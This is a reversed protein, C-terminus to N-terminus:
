GVSGFRFSIEAADASVVLDFSHGFFASSGSKTTVTVISETAVADLISSAQLNAPAATTSWTVILGADTALHNEISTTIGNQTQMSLFTASFTGVQNGHEDFLATTGALYQSAITSSNVSINSTPIAILSSELDAIALSYTGGDMAAATPAAAGQPGAPGRPGTAGVAGPKGTAIPAPTAMAGTEGRPGAPGQPGAPGVTHAALGGAVQFAALAILALVVLAFLPIFM